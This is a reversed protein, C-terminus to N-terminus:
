LWVSLNPNELDRSKETGQQALLNLLQLSKPHLISIWNFQQIYFPENRPLYNSAFSEFELSLLALLVVSEFINKDYVNIQNM